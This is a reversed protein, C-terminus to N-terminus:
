AAPPLPEGNSDVIGLDVKSKKPRNSELFPMGLIGQQMMDSLAEMLARMAPEKDVEEDLVHIEFWRDKGQGKLMIWNEVEEQTMPPKIPRVEGVHEEEQM